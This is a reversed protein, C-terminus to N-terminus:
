ETGKRELSDANKQEREQKKMEILKEMNLNHIQMQDIKGKKIGLKYAVVICGILVINIAM